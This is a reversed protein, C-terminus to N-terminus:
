GIPLDSYDAPQSALQGNQLFATDGYWQMGLNQEGLAAFCEGYSLPGDYVYVPFNWGHEYSWDAAENENPDCTFAVLPTDPHASAWAPLQYDAQEAVCGPCVYGFGRIALEGHHPTFSLNATLHINSPIPVDLVSPEDTSYVDGVPPLGGMWDQVTLAAGPHAQNYAAFDAGVVLM